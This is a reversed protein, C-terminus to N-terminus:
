KDLGLFLCAYKHSVGKSDIYTEGCGVMWEMILLALAIGILSALALNLIKKMEQGGFTAGLGNRSLAGHHQHVSSARLALEPEDSQVTPGAL